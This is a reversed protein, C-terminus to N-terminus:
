CLDLAGLSHQRYEQRGLFILYVEHFAILPPSRLFVCLWDLGYVLLLEHKTMVNVGALCAKHVVHKPNFDKLCGRGWMRSCLVDPQDWLSPGTTYLGGM